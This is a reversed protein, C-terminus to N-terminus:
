HYGRFGKLLEKCKLNGQCVTIYSAHHSWIFARESWCAQYAMAQQAVIWCAIQGKFVVTYSERQWKQARVDKKSPWWKSKSRSSSAFPRSATWEPEIAEWDPDSMRVALLAGAKCAVKAQMSKALLNCCFLINNLIKVNFIHNVNLNLDHRLCWFTLFKPKQSHQSFCIKPFIM